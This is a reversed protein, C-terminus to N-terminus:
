VDPSQQPTDYLTLASPPRRHAPTLTRSSMIM